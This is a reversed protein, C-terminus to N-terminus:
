EVPRVGGDGSGFWPSTLFRFMGGVALYFISEEQTSAEGEGETRKVRAGRGVVM